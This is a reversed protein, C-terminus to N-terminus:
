TRGDLVDALRRLEDTPIRRHGQRNGAWGRLEASVHESSSGVVVPSYPQVQAYALAAILQATPLPRELYLLTPALDREDKGAKDEYQVELKLALEDEDTVEVSCLVPLSEFAYEDEELMTTTPLWLRGAAASM